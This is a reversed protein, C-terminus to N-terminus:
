RNTAIWCRDFRIQDTEQDDPRNINRGDDQFYFYLFLLLLL